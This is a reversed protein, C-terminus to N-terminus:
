GGAQCAERVPEQGVIELLDRVVDGQEHLQAWLCIRDGPSGSDWGNLVAEQRDLLERVAGCLRERSLRERYAEMGRSIVEEEACRHLIARFRLADIALVARADAKALEPGVGEWIEAVRADVSHSDFVDRLPDAILSKVVEDSLREQRALDIM